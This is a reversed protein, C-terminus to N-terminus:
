RTTHFLETGGHEAEHETRQRQAARGMRGLGEVDLATDFNVAFEGLAYDDFSEVTAGAGREQAGGGVGVTVEDEPGSRAAIM